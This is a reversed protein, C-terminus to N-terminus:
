SIIGAGCIFIFSLDNVFTNFSRIFYALDSIWWGFTPDVFDKEASIGM